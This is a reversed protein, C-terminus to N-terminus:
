WVKKTVIDKCLALVGVKGNIGDKLSTNNKGSLIIHIYLVKVTMNVTDTWM